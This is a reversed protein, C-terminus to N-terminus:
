SCKKTESLVSPAALWAHNTLGLVVRPPFLAPFCRLYKQLYSELRDILARTTTMNFVAKAVFARALVTRDKQPRGRWSVCLKAALQEIRIVELIAVLQQQKQTLSPLEEEIQPFLSSQIRNWYQSLTQSV